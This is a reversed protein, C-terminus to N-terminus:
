PVIPPTVFPSSSFCRIDCHCAFLEIPGHHRILVFCSKLQLLHLLLQLRNILFFLIVLLRHFIQALLQTKNVLSEARNTRGTLFAAVKEQLLHLLKFLFVFSQLFLRSVQQELVFTIIRLFSEYRSQPIGYFLYVLLQSHSLAHVVERLLLDGFFSPCFVM